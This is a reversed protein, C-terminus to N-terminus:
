DVEKSLRMIVATAIAVIILLVVGMASALGVESTRFAAIYIEISPLTTAKGPGGGTAVWTIDFSRLAGIVTLTAAVAIEPRIGPVTINLFQKWGTAGDLEAAEYLTPDIRQVGALFLVMCLGTGFWAGILGIAPMAWHPDGLPAVPVWGGTVKSLWGSVGQPSLLFEWVVAIVVLSVIQPLYLLARYTTVGRIRSRSLLATIVLGLAIPAVSNTLVLFIANGYAVRLIPDTFVNVYNALGAWTAGTLGDWNFFSLQVTQVVPVVVFLIALALGPLLYLYAVVSQRLRRRTRARPPRGAAAPAAAPREAELSATTM